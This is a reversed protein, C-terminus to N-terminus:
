SQQKSNLKLTEEYLNLQKLINVFCKLHLFSLFFVIFMQTGLVWSLLYFTLSLIADWKKIGGGERELINVAGFTINIMETNAM